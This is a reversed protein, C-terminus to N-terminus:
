SINLIYIEFINMMCEFFTWTYKFFHTHVFMLINIFTFPLFPFYFSLVFWLLFFVISLSRFSFIFVWFLRCFFWVPICGLFIFHISPFSYFAFIFWIFNTASAGTFPCSEYCVGTHSVMTKDYRAGCVTQRSFCHSRDMLLNSRIVLIHPKKM